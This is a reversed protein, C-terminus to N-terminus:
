CQHVCECYENCLRQTWNWVINRSTVDLPFRYYKRKIKVISSHRKPKNNKRLMITAEVFWDHSFGPQWLTPLVRMIDMGSHTSNRIVVLAQRPKQSDYATGDMGNPWAIGPINLGILGTTETPWHQLMIAASSTLTFYQVIHKQLTIYYRKRNWTCFRTRQM